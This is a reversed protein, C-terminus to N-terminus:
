VHLGVISRNYNHSEAELWRGKIVRRAYWYLWFPLKTHAMFQETSLAKIAEISDKCAGSEIAKDIMSDLKERTMEM